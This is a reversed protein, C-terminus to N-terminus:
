WGRHWERFEDVSIRGDKNRDQEMFTRGLERLFEVGTIVGDKDDDMARWLEAKRRQAAERMRVLQSHPLRAPLDAGMRVSFFEERTVRGDHNHDMAEYLRAAWASHEGYSITGDRDTDQMEVMRAHAQEQGDAHSGGQPTAAGATGLPAIATLWILHSLRM